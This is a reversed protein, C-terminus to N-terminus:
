HVITKVVQGAQEDFGWLGIVEGNIPWILLSFLLIVMLSVIYNM